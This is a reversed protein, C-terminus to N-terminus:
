ITIVPHSRLVLKELMRIVRNILFSYANHIQSNHMFLTDITASIRIFVTNSQQFINRTVDNIIAHSFFIIPKCSYM